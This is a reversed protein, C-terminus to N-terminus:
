KPSTLPSASQHCGSSAPGSVIQEILSAVRPLALEVEPSLGAGIEMLGAEIGILTLELPMEALKLVRGLSLTEAIGWGHASRASIEFSDLQDETLTYITGPKADSHVADVLIAQSAGALLNLLGIGPLGALEVIIDPQSATVPFTKQWLSVAVPGAADDGRLSQGIGIIKTIGPSNERADTSLASM